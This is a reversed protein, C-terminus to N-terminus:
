KKAKVQTNKDAMAKILGDIGSETIKKTFSNKYNVLLSVGNVNVNYAKWGQASKTFNYDLVLTKLNPASIVTRVTSETQGAALAQPKVEVNANRYILLQGIYTRVLLTHFQKTLELQQVPTAKPWNKGVTISTMRTFDFHALVKDEVLATAKEANMSPDTKLITMVDKVSANTLDVPTLEAAMATCALSMLLSASVMWKSLIRM